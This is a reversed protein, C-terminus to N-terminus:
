DLPIEAWMLAIDYVGNTATAAAAVSAWGGPPVIITGGLDVWQSSLAALTVAGTGVLHTPMFFAGATAVTGIRYTNCRAAPGGMLCNTSGDIATTTTPLVSIGGTIGIASAVSTATTVSVGMGLLVANVSRQGTVQTNNWLLPGGTGAATSWIVPTTVTAYAVFVKGQKVWDYYSSKVEASLTPM